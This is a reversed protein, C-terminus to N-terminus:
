TVFLCVTLHVSTIKVYPTRKQKTYFFIYRNIRSSCRTFYTRAISKTGFASETVQFKTWHFQGVASREHQMDM